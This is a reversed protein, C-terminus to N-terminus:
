TIKEVMYIMDDAFAYYLNHFAQYTFIFNVEKNTICTFQVVKYVDNCYESFSQSM